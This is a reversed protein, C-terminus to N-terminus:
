VEQVSGLDIEVSPENLLKVSSDAAQEMTAAVEEDQDQEVVNSNENEDEVLLQERLEEEFNKDAAKLEEEVIDEAENIGSEIAKEIISEVEQHTADKKVSMVM